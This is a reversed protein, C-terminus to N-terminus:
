GCGVPRVPTPKARESEPVIRVFRALYTPSDCEIAMTFDDVLISARGKVYQRKNALLQLRIKKEVFARVFPEAKTIIIEEAPSNYQTWRPLRMVLDRDPYFKLVLEGPKLPGDCGVFCGFRYSGTIVFQGSFHADLEEGLRVFAVPSNSPIQIGGSHELPIIRAAIPEAARASISPALLALAVAAGLAPRRCSFLM